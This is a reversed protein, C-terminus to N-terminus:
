EGRAKRALYDLLWIVGLVVLVPLLTVGVCILGSVAAGAGWLFFVLGLGVVILLIFFGSLLQIDTQRAYKRLDRILNM